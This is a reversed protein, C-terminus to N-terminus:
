GLVARVRELFDLVTRDQDAVNFQCLAGATNIKVKRDGKRDPEGITLTMLDRHFRQGQQSGSSTQTQGFIELVTGDFTFLNQVVVGFETRRYLVQDVAPSPTSAPAAGALHETWGAGDWYRQQGGGGPDAYWGAPTEGPGRPSAM